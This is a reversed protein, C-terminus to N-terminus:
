EKKQRGKEELKERLEKVEQNLTRLACKYQKQADTLNKICKHLHAIVGEKAIGRDQLAKMHVLARALNFLGSAGLKETAQEAYPDVDKDKIISEIVEMAYDKHTLLHRDSGQTVPDLTMM